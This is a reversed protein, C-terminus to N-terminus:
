SQTEKRFVELSQIVALAARRNAAAVARPPAFNQGSLWVRGVIIHLRLTAIKCRKPARENANYRIHRIRLAVIM